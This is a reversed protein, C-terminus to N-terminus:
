RGGKKLGDLIALTRASLVDALPQLTTAKGNRLYVRIATTANPRTTSQTFSNRPTDHKQNPM